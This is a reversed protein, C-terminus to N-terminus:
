IKKLNCYERYKDRILAYSILNEILEAVDTDSINWLRNNKLEGLYIKNNRLIYPYYREIFLKLEKISGSGKNGVTIRGSHYFEVANNLIYLNSDVVLQLSHHSKNENDIAVCIATKEIDPKSYTCYSSMSISVTQELGEFDILFSRYMGEFKGGSSNGCTCFKLGIDKIMKFIKYRGVPFTYATDLLCEWLNVMASQLDVHTDKGIEWNVYKPIGEKELNEFMTWEPTLCYNGRYMDDWFPMETITYWDIEPNYHFYVSKNGNTVAVWIAELMEAYEKTQEIVDKSIKEYSAMCKIVTLPVSENEIKCDILVINNQKFTITNKPINKEKLIDIVNKKIIEVSTKRDTKMKLQIGM